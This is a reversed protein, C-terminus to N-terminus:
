RDRSCLSGRGSRLEPEATVQRACRCRKSRLVLDLGSGREHGHKTRRACDGPSRGRSGAGHAGFPRPAPLAGARLRYYVICRPGPAFEASSYSPAPIRIQPVAFLEGRIPFNMPARTAIELPVYEPRMRGFLSIRGKAGGELRRALALEEGRPPLPHGEGGSLPLTLALRRSGIDDHARERGALGSFRSCSVLGGKVFIRCIFAIDDFCRPFTMHGSTVVSGKRRFGSGPEQQAHQLRARQPLVVRGDRHPRQPADGRPAVPM